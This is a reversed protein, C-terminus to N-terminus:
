PTFLSPQLPPLHQATCMLRVGDERRTEKGGESLLRKLRPKSVTGSGLGELIKTAIRLLKNLFEKQVLYHMRVSSDRVIHEIKTCLM